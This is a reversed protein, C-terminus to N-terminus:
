GGEGRRRLQTAVWGRGTTRCWTSGTTRCTAPWPRACPQWRGCRPRRAPRWSPPPQLWLRPFPSQEMGTAAFPQCTCGAAEPHRAGGTCAGMPWPMGARARDRKGSLQSDAQQRLRGSHHGPLLGPSGLRDQLLIPHSAPFATSVTMPMTDVAAACPPGAALSGSGILGRSRWSEGRCRCRRTAATTPPRCPM